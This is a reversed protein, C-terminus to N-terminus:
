RRMGGCDNRGKNLVGGGGRVGVGDGGENYSNVDLLKEYTATFSSIPSGREKPVTFLALTMLSTM